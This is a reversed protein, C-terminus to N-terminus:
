SDPECNQDRFLPLGKSKRWTVISTMVQEASGGQGCSPYYILDSGEPHAVLEIFLELLRDQWAASGTAQILEEVISLFEDYSYEELCHRDRTVM